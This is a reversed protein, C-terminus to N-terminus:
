RPLRPHDGHGTTSWSRSTTPRRATPVRLIILDDIEDNGIEIPGKVLDDWAVTGGAPNRFRVGAGRGAPVPPLTKGPEPRWRGDYRPRRAVDRTQRRACPTSSTPRASAATPPAPAIMQEVVERYRALRQMQYYPGEDHDLGLWQM